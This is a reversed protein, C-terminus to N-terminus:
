QFLQAVDQGELVASDRYLICATAPDRETRYRPPASQWCSEEAWRCRPAFKCGVTKRVVQIRGEDAEEDAWRRTRDVSPISAILLRTYPHQPDRIVKEAAGAEVVSGGYM